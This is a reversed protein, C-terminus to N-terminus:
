RPEAPIGDLLRDLAALFGPTEAESGYPVARVIRRLFEELAQGPVTFEAAGGPSHLHLRLMRADPGAPRIQVDGVGAPGGLGERLLEREFHWVVPDRADGFDFTCEISHPTDPSYHLHALVVASVPFNLNVYLQMDM